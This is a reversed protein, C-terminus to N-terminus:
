PSQVSMPHCKPCGFGNGPAGGPRDWMRFEMLSKCTECHPQNLTAITKSRLKLLHSQLVALYSVLDDVDEPTMDHRYLIEVTGGTVECRMLHYDITSTAM